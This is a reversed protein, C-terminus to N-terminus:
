RRRLHSWSAVTLSAVPVVGIEQAWVQAGGLDEILDAAADSGRTDNWLIAPRVPRGAPRDLTVLGHQQASVSIAAVDRACGTQRIADRLARWWIEPNTERAGDVGSVVHPAYGDAVVRGDGVDVIVVKTAQTSCDVGAVLQDPM